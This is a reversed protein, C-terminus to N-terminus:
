ARVIVIRARLPNEAAHLRTRGEYVLPVEDVAIEASLQLGDHGACRRPMSRQGYGNKGRLVAFLRKSIMGLARKNERRGYVANGKPLASFISASAFIGSSM